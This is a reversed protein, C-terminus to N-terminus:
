IKIYSKKLYDKLVDELNEGKLDNNDYLFIKDVRYKKYHEIFERIYNNEKKVPTCLCIKLGRKKILFIIFLLIFIM